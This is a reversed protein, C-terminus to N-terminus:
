KYHRKAWLYAGLWMGELILLFVGPQFILPRGIQALGIQIFVLVSLAGFAIALAELHIQRQLEDMKRISRILSSVVLLGTVAPLVVSVAIWPGTPDAFLIWFVTAVSFLIAVQSMQKSNTSSHNDM